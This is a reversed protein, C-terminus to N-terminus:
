NKLQRCCYREQCELNSCGNVEKPWPGDEIDSCYSLKQPVLKKCETVFQSLEQGTLRYCGSLDLEEVARYVKLHELGNVSIDYCGSLNIKRLPSAAFRRRRAFCQALNELARDNILRCGEFSADECKRLAGHRALNIFAKDTVRTYSLDLRKLNPCLKLMARVQHNFLGVSHSIILQDVSHGIKPLLYLITCNVVLQERNGNELARTIRNPEAVPLSNLSETSSALSSSATRLSNNGFRREEVADSVQFSWDGKAWQIPCITRWLRPTFVVQNWRKNVRAARLLERPDNIYEFLRVLIEEPLDSISKQGPVPPQEAPSCCISSTSAAEGSSASATSARQKEEVEECYTKRFRLDELSAEFEDFVPDDRKRKIAKLRKELKVKERFLSHQRLVMENMDALEKAEFNEQLLPQFVAEEEEMHHLFESLFSQIAAQLEKGTKQLEEQTSASYVKEVLRIVDM